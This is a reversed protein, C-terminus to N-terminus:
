EVYNIYHFPDNNILDQKDTLFQNTINLKEIPKYFDSIEKGCIEYFIKRSIKNNHLANILVNGFYRHILMHTSRPILVLNTITNNLYNGDKHHIDYGKPLKKINFHNKVVIYYFDSKRNAKNFAIKGENIKRLLSNPNNIGNYNRYKIACSQSCCKRREEQSKKVQFEKGCVPCVLTVKQSLIKSKYEKLCNVSCCVYNKARCPFVMEHKGCNKCVVEVLKRKKRFPPKHNKLWEHYCKNSCFKKNLKKNEFEKGCQRCIYKYM